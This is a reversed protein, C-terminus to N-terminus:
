FLEPVLSYPKIRDNGIEMKKEGMENKRDSIIM